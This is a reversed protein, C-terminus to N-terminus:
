REPGSGKQARHTRSRRGLVVAALLGAVL